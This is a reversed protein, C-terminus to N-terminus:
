YNLKILKQIFRYDTKLNENDCVRNGKLRVLTDVKNNLFM